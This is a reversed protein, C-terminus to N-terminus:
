SSQRGVVFPFCRKRVIGTHYSRATLEQGVYCGKTFSIGDMLDLNVLFPLRGEVEKGELVGNSYRLFRYHEQTTLRADECFEKLPLPTVYRLGMTPYRPDIISLSKFNGDETPKEHDETTQITDNSENFFVGWVNLQSSIDEIIAKKRFLYGKIHHKVQEGTEAPVDVWV